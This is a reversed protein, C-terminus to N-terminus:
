HYIIHEMLKLSISEDLYDNRFSLTEVRLTDMFIIVVPESHKLLLPTRCWPPPPPSCPATGSNFARLLGIAPSPQM